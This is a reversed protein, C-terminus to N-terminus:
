KDVQFGRERLADLISNASKKPEERKPESIIHSTTAEEIVRSLGLRKRDEAEWETLFQYRRGKRKMFHSHEEKLSKLKAFHKVENWQYGHLYPDGVASAFYFGWVGNVPGAEPLRKYFEEARVVLEEAIATQISHDEQIEFNVISRSQGKNVSERWVESMGLYKAASEATNGICRLFAVAKAQSMLIKPILESDYAKEVSELNQFGLVMRIGKSRGTQFLDDIGTLGLRQFEDLIIWTRPEFVEPADSDLLVQTLRQFFFRNLAKIPAGAEAHDGLLLIEGTKSDRFDKLSVRERKKEPDHWAGAIIELERMKSAVTALVDNNDKSRDVYLEILNKTSWHKGLIERITNRDRIALCVDWFHWDLRDEGAEEREIDTLIFSEMVGSILDRAARQFFEADKMDSFDPCFVSAITQAHARDTIDKAIEWMACRDDFPNLIKIPANDGLLAYLWPVLEGKPDYIVARRGQGVEQLAESMLLKISVTKGSGTQGIFIFHSESPIRIGGWAIGKDDNPIARAALAAAKERTLLEAGRRVGERKPEDEKPKEKLRSFDFETDGKVITRVKRFLSKKKQESM